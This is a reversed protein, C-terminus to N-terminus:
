DSCDTSTHSGPRRLSLDHAALADHVARARLEKTGQVGLKDMIRVYYSELTRISINLQQAITENSHGLGLLQYVRLQQGSLEEVPNHQQLAQNARPSLFSDGQFLTAVAQLLSDATERKTVYGRAGANLAARILNPSEHMSYVLVSLGRRHLHKILEIGSEEGLALDVIVLPQDRLAPNQLTESSNAAQGALTFGATRLLNILGERVMPHDDVLFFLKPTDSNM